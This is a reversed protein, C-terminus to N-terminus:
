REIFNANLGNWLWVTETTGDSNEKDRPFLMPSTRDGVYMILNNYGNIYPDLFQCKFFVDNIPSTLISHLTDTTMITWNITLKTKRAIRDRQYMGNAIRGTGEESDLDQLGFQIGAPDPLTVWVNTRSSPKSFDCDTKGVKLIGTRTVLPFQRM